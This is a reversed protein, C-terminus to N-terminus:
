QKRGSGIKRRCREEEKKKNGLNIIKYKQSQKNRDERGEEGEEGEEEEEGGGGEEKV